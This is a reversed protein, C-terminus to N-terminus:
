DGHRELDELREANTQEHWRQEMEEHIDDNSM